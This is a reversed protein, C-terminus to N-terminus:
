GGGLALRGIGWKHNGAIEPVVYGLSTNIHVILYKKEQFEKKSKKKKKESEPHRYPFTDGTHVNDMEDVTVFSITM